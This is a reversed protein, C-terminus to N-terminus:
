SQFDGKPSPFVASFIISIEMSCRLPLYFILFARKITGRGKLEFSLPIKDFMSCSLSDYSTEMIQKPRFSMISSTLIKLM